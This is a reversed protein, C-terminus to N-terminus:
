VALSRYVAAGEPEQLRRYPPPSPAPPRPWAHPNRAERQEWYSSASSSSSHGQPNQAQPREAPAKTQLYRYSLPRKARRSRSQAPAPIHSPPRKRPINPCPAPSLAHSSLGRLARLRIESLLLKVISQRGCSHAIELATKSSIGSRHDLNAEHDLLVQVDASNGRGAAIMLATRDLADTADVNADATLLTRLVDSRDMHPPTRCDAAVHLPTMGKGDSANVNSGATLLISLLELVKPLPRNQAIAIHLATSRGFSNWDPELRCLLTVDAGRSLLQKIMAIDYFRCARHLANLGYKPSLSNICAGHDLLLQVMAPSRNEMALLLPSNYEQSVEHLIVEGCCDINAGRHLLLRVLDKKEAEVAAHLPSGWRGGCLTSLDLRALTAPNASSASYQEAQDTTSLDPRASKQLVTEALTYCGHEILLTLLAASHGPVFYDEYSTTKADHLAIYERILFDSPEFDIAQNTHAIEIHKFIYLLIYEPLKNGSGTHVPSQYHHRLYSQCDQAIGAHNEAGRMKQVVRTGSPQGHSLLYEKVSEHIFQVVGHGRRTSQCEILGRSIHLIYRHVSDIDIDEYDTSWRDSDLQGSGAHIALYLEMPSLLREASLVWRMAVAYGADASKAIEVFLADLERPLSTLTEQLQARTAGRDFSERLLDVVLIVWLFIGSCRAQIEAQMERKISLPLALRSTVYTAIDKLHMPMADIKAEEHSKMTIQPYNRSALCLHFHIEALTAEESLQEFFRIASRIQDLECEDLADIYCVVKEEPTLSLIAQRLLDELIMLSWPRLTTASVRQAAMEGLRPICEYLQHMVSRYMGETSKVLNDPSRGNYFFAINVTDDQRKQACDYIYRMLTSKGSGANGKVWLVGNHSQRLDPDRWRVYERAHIFWACTDVCAPSITMLRDRMGDFALSELLGRVKARILSQQKAHAEHPQAIVDREFRADDDENTSGLNQYITNYVNGFHSRSHGTNHINRFSQGERTDSDAHLPAAQGVGCSVEEEVFETETPGCGSDM